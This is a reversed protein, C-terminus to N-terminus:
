FKEELLKKRNKELCVLMLDNSEKKFSTERM